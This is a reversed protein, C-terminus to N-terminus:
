REAPKEASLTAPAFSITDASPSSSGSNWVPQDAKADLVREALSREDRSVFFTCTLQVKTVRIERSEEM